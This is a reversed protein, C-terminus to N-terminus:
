VCFSVKAHGAKGGLRDALGDKGGGMNKTALQHKQAQEKATHKASVGKRGGRLRLQNSPLLAADGDPSRDLMRRAVYGGWEQEQPVNEVCVRGAVYTAVQGDCNGCGHRANTAGCHCLVALAGCSVRLVTSLVLLPAVKKTLPGKRVECAPRARQMAWPGGWTERRKGRAPYAPSDLTFKDWPFSSAFPKRISLFELLETVLLEMLEIMVSTGQILFGAEDDDDPGIEVIWEVWEPVFPAIAAAWKAMKWVVLMLFMRALM